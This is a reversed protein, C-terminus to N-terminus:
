HNEKTHPCRACIGAESRDPDASRVYRPCPPEQDLLDGDGAIEHARVEIVDLTADMDVVPPTDVSQEEESCAGQMDPGPQLEEPPQITATVDTAGAIKAMQELRAVYEDSDGEIVLVAGEHTHSINVEQAVAVGLLADLRDMIRLSTEMAREDGGNVKPWLRVLMHNLREIQLSKHDGHAEVIVEDMAAKYARHASQANSYGVQEACQQFTAGAKRLELVKRQREIALLRNKTRKPSTLNTTGPTRTIKRPMPELTAM